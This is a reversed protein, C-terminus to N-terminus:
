RVAWTPMFEDCDSEMVSDVAREWQTWREAPTGSPDAVIVPFIAAVVAANTLNTASSFAYSARGNKAHRAVSADEEDVLLTRKRGNKFDISGNVTATDAGNATTTNSNSIPISILATQTPTPAITAVRTKKPSAHTVGNPILRLNSQSKVLPPPPAALTKQPPPLPSAKSESMSPPKREQIVAKTVAATPLTPANLVSNPHTSLASNEVLPPTATIKKISVHAVKPVPVSMPVSVVAPKV